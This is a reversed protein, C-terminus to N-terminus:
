KVEVFELEFLQEIYYIEEVNLGEDNIYSDILKLDLMAKDNVILKYIDGTRIDEYKRGVRDWNVVDKLSLYKRDM